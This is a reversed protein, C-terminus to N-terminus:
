LITSEIHKAAPDDRQETNGGMLNGNVAEDSRQIVGAEETRDQLEKNHTEPLLFCLAAAIVPSSGYIAMPIAYHYICLLNILPATIGGFRASVSSLGVGNQRVVTPFLEAAYVYSISFSCASSLKGIVALVTTVVPLDKPIVTIILCAIGSLFLCATQCKKRGYRGLIFMAQIRALVEVVGFVLQTLYINLGFSGVNLSLGYYVLSNAFWLYFSILTIKRLHKNRFLDLMNGATSKKEEMLQLLMEEPINKKNVSAAKQLLKKAKENKGQTLLWRASEPIIWIYCFVLAVPASGVLLLFRWNRILYALGALAMLGFGFFVHSIIAAHARQAAGVWETVLVLNNMFIGAIGIGMICRLATYTYFDQVFAAGTGFILQLLLSLLIIPRRGIRDSLPGLVLGGILLGAMFVSQSIAHQEKRECVLDFETILTSKQESTDYVWGDRCKETINLRYKEISEIDWEVPTYMYCEEYSGHGNKPLTLNLQQEKTLNPAIIWIWSTNCHHPVSIGMFVQSFTNIATLFTPICMLLVLWKQFRGFEGASKLIEEFSTM